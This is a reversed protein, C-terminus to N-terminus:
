KRKRNLKRQNSKRQRRQKPSERHIDTSKEKGEWLRNAINVVTNERDKENGLTSGGKVTSGSKEKGKAAGKGSLITKNAKYNGFRDHKREMRKDSIVKYGEKRWEKKTKNEGSGKIARPNGSADLSNVDFDLSGGLDKRSVYKKTKDAGSKKKKTQVMTKAPDHRTLSETIAGAAQNQSYTQAKDQITSSRVKNLIKGGAEDPTYDQIKYVENIRQGMWKKNNDYMEGTKHDASSVEDGTVSSGEIKKVDTTVEDGLHFEKGTADTLYKSLTHKSTQTSPADAIITQESKEGPKYKKGVDEITQKSSVFKGPHNKKWRDQRNQQRELKNSERKIKKGKKRSQRNYRAAALRESIKPGM